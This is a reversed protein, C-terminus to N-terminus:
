PGSEKFTIEGPHMCACPAHKELLSFNLFFVGTENPSAGAVTNTDAGLRGREPCTTRAYNRFFVAYRKQQEDTAFSSDSGDDLCEGPAASSV